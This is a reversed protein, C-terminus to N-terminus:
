DKFFFISAMKKEFIIFPLKIYKEIKKLTVYFFYFSRYSVDGNFFINYPTFYVRTKRINKKNFKLAVVNDLDISQKKINFIPFLSTKNRKKPKVQLSKNNIKIAFPLFIFNGLSYFIWREKYKEFGQIVHSHNGIILDAGSDIIKKAVNRQEPTPYHM